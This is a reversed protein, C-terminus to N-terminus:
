LPPPSRDGFFNKEARWAEDTQDLILFPAQDGRPEEGARSRGSDMIWVVM